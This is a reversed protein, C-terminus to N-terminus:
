KKKSRPTRKKEKPSIANVADIFQQVDNFAAYVSAFRVYAVTDLERLREMILQGIYSSEVEHVGLRELEGMVDEILEDIAQSPIDRKQCASLIGREVKTRDFPECGGSRKIVRPLVYEIREYTTFRAGCLLCERRRRTSQADSSARSDVVRDNDKHCRPCRM